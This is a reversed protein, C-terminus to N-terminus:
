KYLWIQPYHDRATTSACLVIWGSAGTGEEAVTKGEEGNAKLTTVATLKFTIKETDNSYTVDDSAFPIYGPETTGGVSHETDEYDYLRHTYVVDSGHFSVNKSEAALKWETGDLYEMKWYAMSAGSAGLEFYIRSKEGAKAGTLSEFTWNDGEWTGYARPNHSVKFTSSSTPVDLKNNNSSTTGAAVSFEHHFTITGATDLPMVGYNPSNAKWTSNYYAKNSSSQIPWVSVKTWEATKGAQVVTVTASASNADNKFTVTAKRETAAANASVVFSYNYTAKVEAVTLWDTGGAVVPEFNAVVPVNYTGGAAPVKLTDSTISIEPAPTGETINIVKMVVLSSNSALVVVCGNEWVEPATVEVTGSSKDAAKVEAKWNGQALAVVETKDDSGTVTYAFSETAGSLMTSPGTINLALPSVKPIVINGGQALTIIVNGGEEKVDTVAPTITSGVSGILVFDNSGSFKVYLKSDEIKFEPDKYTEGYVPVKNGDVLLYSGNLTWYYKGDSDKKVGITDGSAESGNIIHLTTGDTMLLDWGVTTPTVNSIYVNKNLGNVLSQLTNYDSKLQAIDKEVNTVRADLNKLETKIGSDDYSSCGAFLALAAAAIILPSKKM